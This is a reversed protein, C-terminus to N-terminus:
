TVSKFNGDLPTLPMPVRTSVAIRLTDVDGPTALEPRDALVSLLLAADAVTTAVPGNEAMDFWSGEGLESPVVGFGPKIGVLVGALPLDARDARADVADAEFRAAEARVLQFAGIRPDREEIRALATEVHQRATGGGHRVDSAIGTVTWDSM